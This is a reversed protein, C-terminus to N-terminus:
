PLEPDEGYFTYVGDIRGPSSYNIRPEGRVHPGNCLDIIDYNRYDRWIVHGDGYAVNIGLCDFDDTPYIKVNMSNEVSEEWSPGSAGHNYIMAYYWVYFNDAMLVGKSSLTKGTLHRPHTASSRSGGPSAWMLDTSWKEVRGFYSYHMRFYGYMLRNPIDDYIDGKNFPCQWIKDLSEAERDFGPMYPGIMTYAIEDPQCGSAVADQPTAWIEGCVRGGARSFSVMLNENNDAAYEAMFLCWQHLNSRCLVNRAQARAKQLSPMLISILLAIISIVVLLEILTFGKRRM